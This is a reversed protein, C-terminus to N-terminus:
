PEYVTVFVPGVLGSPLKVRDIRCALSNTVAARLENRGPKVFPRIDFTYPHWMKVGVHRGNVSLEVMEHVEGLDLVIRDAAEPADLVFTNTYEVTGSFHELGERETWSGLAFSKGPLSIATGTWGDPLDITGKITSGAAADPLEALPESPDVRYVLSQRRELKVAVNVGNEARKAGAQRIAGVWPDWLEIHGEASWVASGEYTQEGENVLVYFHSGDKVVHSMRIDRCPPELVLDRPVLKDLLPVLREADAARETAPLGATGFSGGLAIVIGGGAIFRRLAQHTEEPWYGGDEVILVTYAQAAIRITGGEIIAKSVLLKEELYNFERQNQFLPKAAQWSLGDERSLVAIPTVNASDTMLWSMRKIYDAFLRYHPWWINNPGVDPPRENVRRPGDISYYFAHPCILNVGRVFLWDFYWKMDGGSLAWGGGPSCVGLVENLNRRRGRHRAADASCKGATSHVGELALGDEPAVWRWVVDQGPIQFHELLGIEDSGAPHGTLAIGHQACWDSLPKYYAAILRNHVAKRYLARVTEAQEAELWLAPLDSEKGGERMFAGLFGNTWPHLGKAHRRGLIDPEDTFMAIVTSGFYPKLREYYRDHTLRIFTATAEPNLLDASPPANPERDDEGFHIGRITGKSFTEIFLAISWEGDGAPPEFRVAGGKPELVVTATGDIRQAGLKKVAQASVLVDGGGLVAALQVPEGCPLEAMKLGRSAYAPNERVVFGKASGSPYMAEDYLIVTMGRRAAEKVATEVLDMYIDSLYPISEPIGIRPHVVFGMVGKEAFDAIQRLIEEPTLTDNWFWFPIPTNEDSPELFQQQLSHNM